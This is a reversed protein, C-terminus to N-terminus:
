LVERRLWAKGLEMLTAYSRHVSLSPSHYLETCRCRCLYRVLARTIHMRSPGLGGMALSAEIFTSQELGFAMRSALAMVRDLEILRTEVGLVAAWCPVVYLLLPVIVGKVLRLFLLPHVGWGLGIGHHLAWLRARAKHIADCVHHQWIM